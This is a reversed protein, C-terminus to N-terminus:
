KFSKTHKCCYHFKYFFQVSHDYFFLYFHFSIYKLLTFSYFSILYYLKSTKFYILPIYTVKNLTVYLSIFSIM